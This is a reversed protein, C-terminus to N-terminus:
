PVSVAHVVGHDSLVVLDLGFAAVDEPALLTAEAYSLSEGTAMGGGQGVQGVVFRSSHDEVLLRRVVHTGSEAIFVAAGDASSALGSPSSLLATQAPGEIFGEFADEGIATTVELTAMDLARITHAEFDSVYLTGGALAVGVPVRIRAVEQEGDVHDNDGFRGLVTEVEGTDVAIRRVANGSSDAVYLGGGQVDLALDWPDSFSADGAAGNSGGTAGSGALTRVTGAAVDIVRIRQNGSDAVYLSREGDFALGVPFRLQASVLPGDQYGASSGCLTTTQYALRGDGRTVDIIRVAHNFTDAIFWRAGDTTTAISYPSQLRAVAGAGDVFGFPTQPGAITTIAGDALSIRRLASSSIDVFLLDDKVAGLSAFAGGLNGDVGDFTAAEPEGALVVAISAAGAALDIRSVVADFGLTFLADDIFEVGQPDLIGDAVVTVVTPSAALDIAKIAGAFTDAVYLLAGNRALGGPGDFGSALTTVNFTQQDITRVKNNIRDSAYIHSGDDQLDHLLFGFRAAVGVGDVDGPASQNGAVTTVTLTQLDVRRLSAGDGIWLVRNDLSVALGRPSALRVEDGVGDVVLLENPAGLLTATAGTAIDVTRITGVFTDALYATAGDPSVALGAPGDFRAAEGVGDVVGRGVVGAVVTVSPPAPAAHTVPPACSCGSLLALAVLCPLCFRM